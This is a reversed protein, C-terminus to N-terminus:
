TVLLFPEKAVGYTFKMDWTINLVTVKEFLEEFNYTKVFSVPIM